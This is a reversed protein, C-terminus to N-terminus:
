FRDLLQLSNQDGYNASSDYDVLYLQFINKDSSDVTENFEYGIRSSAQSPKQGYLESMESPLVKKLLALTEDVSKAGTKEGLYLNLKRM